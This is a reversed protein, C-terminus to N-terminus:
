GGRCRRAAGPRPRRRGRREIATGSRDVVDFPTLAASNWGHGLSPAGAPGGSTAPAMSCTRLSRCRPTCPASVRSPASRPSSIQTSACGSMSGPPSLRRTKATAAGSRCRRTGQCSSPYAPLGSPHRHQRPHRVGAPLRLRRRPRGGDCRHSLSRRVRAVPRAPENQRASVRSLGGPPDHPRRRGRRDSAAMTGVIRGDALFLVSDAYSAAVPDHTVMVVTQGIEDVCQACCRWCRAVRAPTSRAPRSTPSSWRPGASWRGPSRWGSSSAVPSSPRGTGCGSPRPRGPRHVENM